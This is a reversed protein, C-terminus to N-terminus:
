DQAKNTQDHKEEGLREVDGMRVSTHFPFIVTVAGEPFGIPGLLTCRSFSCAQESMVNLM